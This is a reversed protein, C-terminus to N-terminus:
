FIGSLRQAATTSPAERREEPIQAKVASLSQLQQVLEAERAKSAELQARIVHEPSARKSARREAMLERAYARIEEHTSNASTTVMQNLALRWFANLYPTQADSTVKRLLVSRKEQDLWEEVPRGLADVLTWAEESREDMMLAATTHAATGATITPIRDIWQGGVRVSATATGDRHVALVYTEGRDTVVSGFFWLAVDFSQPLTDLVVKKVDTEEAVARGFVSFPVCSFRPGESPDLLAPMLVGPLIEDVDEGYDAFQSVWGAAASEIVPKACEIANQLTAMSPTSPDPPLHKVCARWFEAPAVWRLNQEALLRLRKEPSGRVESERKRQAAHRRQSAKSM